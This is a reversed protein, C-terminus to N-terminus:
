NRHDQEDNGEPASEPAAKATPGGPVAVIVLAPRVLREGLRYGKQLVQVVTAEEVGSVEYRQIAEHLAPDFPQDVPDVQSLGHRGLIDRFQKLVLEVGDRLGKGDGAPAALARELNDLVPLCDRMLEANSYRRFEVMDREQRKRYNDFDALKRLYLERFHSIEQQLTQLEEQIAEDVGEPGQEGAAELETSEPGGEAGGMAETEAADKPEEEPALPREEDNM